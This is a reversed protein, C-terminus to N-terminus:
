TDRGASRTAARANWQHWAGARSLRQRRVAREPFRGPQLEHQGDRGGTRRASRLLRRWGRRRRRGRQLRRRSSLAAGNWVSFPRGSQATLVGSFQWDRFLSLRSTGIARRLSRPAWLVSTSVAIRSTSCRRLANATAPVRRGACRQGAGLQGPVPRHVHGVLHRALALLPLEGSAVPRGSFERRIEATFANYTSTVGNTVFLLVSFNPNIRDEKGDLLDGAFRNM